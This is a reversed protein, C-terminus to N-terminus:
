LGNSITTVTGDVGATLNGMANTIAVNTLSESMQIGNGITGPAVATLTIVGLVASATVVGQLTAVTNIATVMSAAQTAATASINFEGSAAVAGSTKATLTVNGLSMTEGNSSGGASVTLKGQAQVAGSTVLCSGWYAGGGIASFYNGVNAFSQPSRGSVLKCRAKFTAESTPISLDFRVKSSM